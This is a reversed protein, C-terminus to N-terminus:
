VMGNQEKFTDWARNLTVFVRECVMQDETGMNRLKDPHIASIVRMYNVKVKKPLMLDGLTMKASTVFPFGMRAPIIEPLAVLLTRLNDDRGHSWREIREHVTDHLRLRVEDERRSDADRQQMRQLNEQARPSKTTKAAAARPVKATPAPPNVINNVRRKADMTKKDTAGHRSVLEMYCTLAEPFQELMELSEAKRGLLKVYWSKISQDNILYATDVLDDVGVLQLGDDCRGKAQKYNGNKILTLALNAAIVIRLEHKEPLAEVCKTYSAYAGDYDGVKFQQSAKEKATEYDSQQFQDLPVLVFKHKIAARPRRRSSSQYTTEDSGSGHKFREARSLSSGMGLLDVDEEKHPERTVEQQKAAVRSEPNQPQLSPRQPLDPQKVPSSRGLQTSTNGTGSIKSKALGKINEYRARQKEKDKLKQAAMFQNIADQDINEEDSGYDEYKEGTSRRVTADEKYMQQTKMWAPLSSQGDDQDSQSHQANQLQEINKMMTKKSNNLFISAKSFFDSSLDSIKAGIEHQTDSHKRPKHTERKEEKKGGGMIYNVCKQLDCGVDDIAQNSQDMSFGIDVLEALTQDRDDDASGNKEGQTKKTKNETRCRDSPETAAAANPTREPTFADTFEDDLLSQENTTHAARLAAKERKGTAMTDGTVANAALANTAPNEFISFPDTTTPTSSRSRSNSGMSSISAGGSNFIDLNSMSNNGSYNMTGMGPSQQRKQRETLPLKKDNVSTNSGSNASQFLDAFADKKPPPVM